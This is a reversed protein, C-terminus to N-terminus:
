MDDITEFVKQDGLRVHRGDPRLWWCPLCGDEMKWRTEGTRRDWYFPGGCTLIMVWDFLRLQPAPTSSSVSAHVRPSPYAASTRVKKQNPLTRFAGVGPEDLDEHVGAPFHSSSSGQEPRFGQLSGGSVPIDVIQALFATSSQELSFGKFVLSDGEM